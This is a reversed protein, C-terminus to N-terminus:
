RNVSPNLTTTPNIGALHHSGFEFQVPVSPARGVDSDMGRNIFDSLDSLPREFLLVLFTKISM